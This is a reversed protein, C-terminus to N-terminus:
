NKKYLMHVTSSKKGVKDPGWRESAGIRCTNHLQPPDRQWQTDVWCYPEKQNHGRFLHQNTNTAYRDRYWGTEPYPKKTRTM